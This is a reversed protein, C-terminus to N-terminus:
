RIKGIYEKARNVLGEDKCHDIVKQLAARFEDPDNKRLFDHHGLEVITRYGSAALEENETFTLAWRLTEVDRIASAREIALKKEDVRVAADFAKKMNELKAASTTQVGIVEDPLSGVRIFARLAAIREGEDIGDDQSLTWLQDAVVANPWNCYARIAARRTPEETFAAAVVSLAEDGGIRGLCPILEVRNGDTIKELVPAADGACLRAVIQEARDREGQDTIRLLVETADPVNEKTSVSEAIQLLRLRNPCDDKRAAALIARAANVNYRGACIDAFVELRDANKEELMIAFIAEDIGDIATNKLVTTMFGRDFSFLLETLVPLDDSRGVEVLLLIAARKLDDNESKVSELALERAKRFVKVAKKERLAENVAFVKLSALTRSKETESMKEWDRLYKLISGPKRYPLSQPLTSENGPDAVQKTRDNLAETIREVAEGADRAKLLAAEAEECPNNALARVAADLLRPEEYGLFQAIVPVEKSTGSWQLLHLLWAKTIVPADSQLAEVMLGNVENRRAEQGPATADLVIRMWEMQSRQQTTAVDDSSMQPLLEAFKAAPDTEKQVEQAMASLGSLCLTMVVFITKKM